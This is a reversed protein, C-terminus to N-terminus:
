NRQLCHSTATPLNALQGTASSVPRGPGAGVSNRGSGWGRRGAEAQTCRGGGAHRGGGRLLAAVMEVAWGQVRQPLGIDSGAGEVLKGCPAHTCVPRFHGHCTMGTHTRVVRAHMCRCCCYLTVAASCATVALFSCARSTRCALPLACMSRQRAMESPPVPGTCSGVAWDASLGGAEGTASDQQELM